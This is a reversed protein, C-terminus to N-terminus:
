FKVQTRAIVVQEDPRNGESAGDTFATQEYHLVFKLNRTLYWNIGVGVAEAASASKKSDAYGAAFTEDDIELESYRAVLEFAGWDGKSPNYPRLPKVGRLSPSEGTLVKSATLQWGSNDLSDSSTGNAIEQESLIYEGL